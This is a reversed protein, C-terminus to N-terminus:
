GLMLFPIPCPSACGCFIITLGFLLNAIMGGTEALEIGAIIMSTFTSTFLMFSLILLFMLGGRSTVTDTPEANRYLGIPYYWCFFMIVGM